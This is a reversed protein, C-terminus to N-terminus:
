NANYRDIVDKDCYGDAGSVNLNVSYRDAEDERWSVMIQIKDMPLVPKIIKAKKVAKLTVIEGLGLSCLTLGAELLIVGPLIKENPFHGDFGIFDDNFCCNSSISLDRDILETERFSALLAKRLEGTNQYHSWTKSSHESPECRRSEINKKDSQPPPDTSEWLRAKGRAILDEGRFIDGAVISIQGLEFERRAKIMLDCPQEVKSLVEFEEIGILFGLLSGGGDETLQKYGGMAAAQQAIMEVLASGLLHEEGELFLNTREVKAIGISEEEGYSLLQHLLRMRGRHPVLKEANMPLTPTRQNGNM